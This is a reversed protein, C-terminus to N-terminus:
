FNLGKNRASDAFEALIGHYTFPGRDFVVTEIGLSKAKEALQEGLVKASQKNKKCYPTQRMEKSNTSVMALTVGAEDNILQAQIHKNTKVVCLRPKNANGRVMKRVRMARRKESVLNKAISSEM